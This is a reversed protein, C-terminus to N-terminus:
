LKEGRVTEITIEDASRGKIEGLVGHRKRVDSDWNDNIRKAMAFREAATKEVMKAHEEVVEAMALAEMVERKSYGGLKKILYERIKM